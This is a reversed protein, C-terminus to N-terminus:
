ADELTKIRAELEQITKVLLPVLKSQDIGQYDPVTASASWTSNSPYLQPDSAKGATWDAEPIDYALVGGSADKVVNKETKTADKTGTVAEPVISSVEHALFGDLLTDDSDEIFNFRAPKLQKLRTTADWSYDVNEKLRYDSTTNYAVTSGNSSISGRTSGGTRILVIDGTAGTIDFICPTAGADIVHLASAPATTGIGVNGAKDIRMRETTSAAGDATTQFTLRTPLDNGGPAGDVAAIIVAGQTAVDTGDAGAFVIVGLEDNNQVVTNSGLSAGRTKAFRLTPATTGNANCTLSMSSTPFDTGEIQVANAGNGGVDRDSGGGILVKSGSAVKVQNSEIALREAKTGGSSVRFAIKGDESSDSVDPTTTVIDAPIFVNGGDDDAYFQIIGVEDNDAPSAGNKQFRIFSPNADANTSELLIGPRSATASTLTLQSDALKAVDAGGVRFDIQDDTDATISTDADNDLILENGNMDIVSSSQVEFKNATMRFDDAGAIKFDIQDDTDATIGTDGDVDLILENGNLDLDGSLINSALNVTGHVVVVLSDGAQAGAALVVSTGNSATYDDTVNLRSGNLYVDIRNATYAMTQSDNDSGTFTTQGATATYDFELRDVIVDAVSFTGFANIQLIDNAAAGSGLVVATGNTATFDAPALRSGNLFVDIQGVTYALSNSNGDNGSFSTQDATATYIFENRTAGKSVERSRTM